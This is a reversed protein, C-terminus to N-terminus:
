KLDLFSIMDGMNHVEILNMIEPRKTRVAAAFVVTDREDLLGKELCLLAARQIIHHEPRKDWRVPTVNYSLNLELAVDHETTIAIIPKPLKFRSILHASYGSRTIVIIKSIEKNSAISYITRSLTDSISDIYPPRFDRVIKTKVHSAIRGGVKKVVRVAELPYRGVATENSLLIADTGDLVANAIDSVEARTPAPNSVMSYLVQTAVISPKAYSNALAVIEKQIIPVEEAPIEIGLDGRAIMVGDAEDVIEEINKVGEWNEVKAIIKASTHKRAKQIDVKSRTYSLAVFAPTTSMLTEIDSPKLIPFKLSRGKLNAAMRDKLTVDDMVKFLMGKATSSILKLEKMGDNLYISNGITLHNQLDQDFVVGQESHRGVLLTDGKGLELRGKMHLRVEPGSTDIMIPKGYKALINFTAIASPPDQHSINLRIVDSEECLQKLAKPDYVSPGYTAVIKVM